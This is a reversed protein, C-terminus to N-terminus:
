VPHGDEGERRGAAVFPLLFTLAHDASEARVQVVPADADEGVVSHLVIRELVLSRVGEM